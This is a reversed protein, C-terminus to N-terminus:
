QLMTDTALIIRSISGHSERGRADLHTVFAITQMRGRSRMCSRASGSSTQNTGLSSRSARRGNSTPCMEIAPVAWRMGEGADRMGYGMDNAPLEVPTTIFCSPDEVVSGPASEIRV